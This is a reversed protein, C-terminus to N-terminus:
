RAEPGGHTVKLLSESGTFVSKLRAVFATSPRHDPVFNVEVGVVQGEGGLPETFQVVLRAPSLDCNDIRGYGSFDQDNVEVYIGWDEDDDFPQVRHFALYHGEADAMGVHLYQPTQDTVLEEVLTTAEFKVIM